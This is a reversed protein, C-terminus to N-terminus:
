EVQVGLRNCLDDFEILEGKDPTVWFAENLAICYADDEAEAQEKKALLLALMLKQLGEESITQVERMVWERNSM